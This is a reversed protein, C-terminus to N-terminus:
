VGGSNLEVHTSEHSVITPKPSLLPHPQPSFHIPTHAGGAAPGLLVDVGDLWNRLVSRHLATRGTGHEQINADAKFALLARVMKIDETEMCAMLPTVGDNDTLNVDTQPDGLMLAIMAENEAVRVATNLISRGALDTTHCNAGLEVLKRAVRLSRHEAAVALPTRGEHDRADV